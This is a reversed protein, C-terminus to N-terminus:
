ILIFDLIPSQRRTAKKFNKRKPGTLSLKGESALGEKLFVNNFYSFARRKSKKISKIFIFDFIPSQGREPKM